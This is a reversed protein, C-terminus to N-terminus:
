RTLFQYIILLCLSSVDIQILIINSEILDALYECVGRIKAEGTLKYAKNFTNLADDGSDDGSKYEDEGEVDVENNKSKHRNQLRNLDFSDLNKTKALLAGIQKIIKQDTQIEVKQRRKQPLEQLVDNKLRRIM